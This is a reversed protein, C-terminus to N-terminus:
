RTQIEGNIHGGGAMRQLKVLLAATDINQIDPTRVEALVSNLRPAAYPLLKVFFDLREKPELTKLLASIHDMEGDVLSVVMDRLERTTRNQIGKARGKPNGSKGKKFKAM